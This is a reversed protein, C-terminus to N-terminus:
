KYEDHHMLHSVHVIITSDDINRLTTERFISSKAHFSNQKAVYFM